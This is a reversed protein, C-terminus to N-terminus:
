AKPLIEPWVHNSFEEEMLKGGSGSPQPTILTTHYGAECGANVLNEYNAM